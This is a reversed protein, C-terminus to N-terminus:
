RVGAPGSLADPGNGADIGRNVVSFAARSSKPVDAHCLLSIQERPILAHM